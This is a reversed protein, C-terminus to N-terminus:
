LLLHLLRPVGKFYNKWKRNVCCYKLNPVLTSISLPDTRFVESHFIFLFNFSGVKHAWTSEIATRRQKCVAVVLM